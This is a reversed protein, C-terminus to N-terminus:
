GGAGAASGAGGRLLQAGPGHAVGRLIKALTHLSGDTHFDEPVAQSPLVNCRGGGSILIKKGPRDNGELLLVPHSGDAAWIAAMIGAAGAGIIVIPPETM